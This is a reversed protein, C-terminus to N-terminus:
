QPPSRKPFHHRRGNVGQCGHWKDLSALSMAQLGTLGCSLCKDGMSYTQAVTNRAM